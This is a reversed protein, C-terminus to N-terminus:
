VAFPAESSTDTTSRFIRLSNFRMLTPLPGHPIAMTLAAFYDRRRTFPAVIIAHFSGADGIGVVRCQAKKSCCPSGRGNDCFIRWALELAVPRQSFSTKRLILDLFGHLRM